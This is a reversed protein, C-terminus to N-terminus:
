LGSLHFGNQTDIGSWNSSLSSAFVISYLALRMLAFLSAKQHFNKTFLLSIFFLFSRSFGDVQGCYINVLSKNFLSDRPLAIISSGDDGIL